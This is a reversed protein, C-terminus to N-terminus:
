ISQMLMTILNQLEEDSMQTYPSDDYPSQPSVQGPLRLSPLPELVGMLGAPGEPAEGGGQMLGSAALLGYDKAAGMVNELGAGLVDRSEQYRQAYPAFENMQYEMDQAEALQALSSEYDRVDRAQDEINMEQLGRYGAETRGVVEGLGIQANGSQQATYLANAAALDLNEKAQTYGPAYPDQTRIRALAVSQELAEPVEYEPRKAGLTGIAGGITQALGVGGSILSPIMVAPIAM